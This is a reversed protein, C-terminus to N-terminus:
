RKVNITISKILSAIALVGAAIAVLYHWLSGSDVALSAFLYATLGALLSVVVLRPWSQKITNIRANSKKATKKAM